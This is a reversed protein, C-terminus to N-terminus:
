VATEPLQLSALSVTTTVWAVGSMAVATLSADIVSPSVNVSVAVIVVGAPAGAGVPV